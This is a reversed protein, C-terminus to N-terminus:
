VTAEKSQGLLKKENNMLAIKMGLNVIVAVVALIILGCVFYHADFWFTSEIYPTKMMEARMKYTEFDVTTLFQTKFASVQIHM